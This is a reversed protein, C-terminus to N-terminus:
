KAEKNGLSIGVFYIALQTCMWQWLLANTKSLENKNKTPMSM